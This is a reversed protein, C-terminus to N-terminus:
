LMGLREEIERITDATMGGEAKARTLTAKAAEIKEEAMRLKREAQELKKADTEAKQELAKNKLELTAVDINGRNMDLLRDLLAVFLKNDRSPDLKMQLVERALDRRIAQLLEPGDGKMIEEASTNAVRTEARRLYPAFDSFFQSFASLAPIEYGEAEAMQMVRELTLRNTWRWRIIEAFAEETLKGMLSDARTDKLWESRAELIPNLTPM